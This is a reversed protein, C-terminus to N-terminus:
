FKPYPRDFKGVFQQIPAQNITKKNCGFISHTDVIFTGIKLDHRSSVLYSATIQKWGQPAIFLSFTVSNSGDKRSGRVSYDLGTKPRYYGLDSTAKIVYIRVYLLKSEM